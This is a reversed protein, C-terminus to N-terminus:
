CLVVVSRPNVSSGQDVARHRRSPCGERARHKQQVDWWLSGAKLVRNPTAASTRSDHAYGHDGRCSSDCDGGHVGDQTATVPTRPVPSLCLSFRLSVPSRGHQRYPAHPPDLAAPRVQLPKAVERPRGYRCACWSCPFCRRHLAWGLTCPTHRTFTSTATSLPHAAVYVLKEM